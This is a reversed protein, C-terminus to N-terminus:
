QVKIDAIWVSHVGLWIDYSCCHLCTILGVMLSIKSWLNFISYSRWLKNPCWTYLLVHYLIPQAGLGGGSEGCKPEYVLASNTLWGLYAVDGQSGRNQETWCSREVGQVSWDRRASLCFSWPCALWIRSMGYKAALQLLDLCPLPRAPYGYYLSLPAYRDVNTLPETGQPWIWLGQSPSWTLEPM